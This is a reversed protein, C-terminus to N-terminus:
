GLAEEIKAVADKTLVLRDANVVPYVGLADAPMLEVGPINRAALIVAPDKEGMVILARDTADLKRLVGAMVRTKPEALRLQEVIVVQGDRLKASLASRLALRRAKKPMTFGYERPKPGFVVGGHRWLPSRISGQRARGTGKQRWPKRGGGSVEGRTKTSHTGQRRNALHMQIAQHLLAPNYPVAWVDDRLTLDGVREGEMNYVPVVPM